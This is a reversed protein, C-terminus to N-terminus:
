ADERLVRRLEKLLHAVALQPNINIRALSRAEDVLRIADPAGAAARPLAAAMKELERGADVNVIRTAAGNAVAGLDRIWVALSDMLDSYHGRAGTPAQAHAAALRGTAENSAVAELLARAETRLVDLPGPQGDEPLFALARGISGGAL